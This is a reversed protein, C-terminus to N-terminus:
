ADDIWSLAVIKWVHNCKALQFVKTGSGAYPTADHFGAKEYRSVRLALSGFMSTQASTEWEHFETLAGNTLLDIRPSLFEEPSFLACQDGHHKAVVAKESFLTAMGASTPIRGGRNDFAAFFRRILDDVQTSNICDDTSM